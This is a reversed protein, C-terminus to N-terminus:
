ADYRWCCMASCEAVSVNINFAAHLAAVVARAQDGQADKQGMRSYALSLVKSAIDDDITVM